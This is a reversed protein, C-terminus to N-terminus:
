VSFLHQLREDIEDDALEPVFTNLKKAQAYLKAAKAIEGRAEMSRGLNFCALTYQPNLMFAKQFMDQAKDPLCQEDLYIVGLNNYAVPNDQKLGIAKQYAAVAQENQDVQWLLFGLLNYCEANEPQHSVVQQYVRIAPDFQNCEMYLDGMRCLCDLDDPNLRLAMEYYKIASAADERTQYYLTGVTQAITSIWVPDQGYEIAKEYEAISGDYDHLNFLIFAIHSHVYPHKPKLAVLEKFYYLAKMTDGEQSLLKALQYRTEFSTDGKAVSQELTDIARQCEQTKEYSLGLKRKLSLNDPELAVAKEYLLIASDLDKEGSFCDGLLHYFVGESPFRKISCGYLRKMQKKAKFLRLIRGTALIGLIQTDLVLAEWVRHIAQRNSVVYYCGTVFCTVVNMMAVSRAMWPLQSVTELYVQMLAFQLKPSQKCGPTSSALHLTEIAQAYRQARFLFIGKQLLGEGFVPNLELSTECYALATETTIAGKEWLAVALRVHSEPLGTNLDLAEQYHQIATELTKPSGNSLYQQFHQNGLNLFYEASVAHETLEPLQFLTFPQPFMEPNNFNPERM